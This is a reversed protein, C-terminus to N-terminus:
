SYYIIPAAYIFRLRQGGFDMRDSLWRTNFNNRGENKEINKNRGLFIIIM